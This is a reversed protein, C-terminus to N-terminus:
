PDEYDEYDERCIPSDPYMECYAIDIVAAAFLKRFEEDKVTLVKKGM